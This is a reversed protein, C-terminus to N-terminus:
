GASSRFLRPRSRQRSISVKKAAFLLVLTKVANRTGGLLTVLPRLISRLTQFADRLGRVVQGAQKLTNNVDTQL